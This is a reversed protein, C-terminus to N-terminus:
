ISTYVRWARISCRCSRMHQAQVREHECIIIRSTTCDFEGTFTGILNRKQALVFLFPLMAMALWESRLGLPSSGGVRPTLYKTFTHLSAVCLLCSSVLLYNRFVLWHLLHVCLRAAGDSCSKGHHLSPRDLPRYHLTSSPVGCLSWLSHGQSSALEFYPSVFTHFNRGEPRGPGPPNIAIMFSQTTKCPRFRQVPVHVVGAGVLIHKHYDSCYNIKRDFERGM